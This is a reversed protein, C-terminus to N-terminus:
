HNVTNGSTTGLWGYLVFIDYHSQHNAVIGYSQDHDIWKKGIYEGEDPAGLQLDTVMNKQNKATIFSPCYPSNHRVYQYKM